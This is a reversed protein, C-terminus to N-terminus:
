QCGPVKWNEWLDASKIAKEIMMIKKARVVIHDTARSIAAPSTTMTQSTRVYSDWGPGMRVEKMLGTVIELGEYNGWPFFEIAFKTVISMGVQHAHGIAGLNARAFAFAENM